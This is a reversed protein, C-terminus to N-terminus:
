VWFKMLFFFVSEFKFLFVRKREWLITIVLLFVELLHEMFDDEGKKMQLRSLPFFFFFDANTFVMM